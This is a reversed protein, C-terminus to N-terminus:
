AAYTNRLRRRNEKRNDKRKEKKKKNMNGWGVGRGKEGTDKERLKGLFIKSRNM